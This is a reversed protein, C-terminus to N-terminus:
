HQVTCKTSVGETWTNQTAPSTNSLNQCFKMHINHWQLGGQISFVITYYVFTFSLFKMCLTPLDWIDSTWFQLSDLESSEWKGSFCVASLPGLCSGGSLRDLSKLICLSSFITPPQSPFFSYGALCHLTHAACLVPLSVLYMHLSQM